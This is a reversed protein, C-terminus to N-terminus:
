NGAAADPLTGAPARPQAKRHCEEPLAPRGGARVRPAPDALMGALLLDAGPRVGPLRAGPRSLARVCLDSPEGPDLGGAGFPSSPLARSCSVPSPSIASKARRDRRLDLRPQDPDGEKQRLRDEVALRAQM